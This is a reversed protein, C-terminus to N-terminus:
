LYYNLVTRRLNRSIFKQLHTGAITGWAKPSFEGLQLALKRRRASMCLIRRIERKVDNELYLPTLEQSSTLPM